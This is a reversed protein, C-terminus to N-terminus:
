GETTRLQIIRLLILFYICYALVSVWALMALTPLLAMNVYHGGWLACVTLVLSFIDYFFKFRLGNLVWVVRSVPSVVVQALGWPAIIAAFHGAESWQHGFIWTFLQPGALMLLACPVSGIAFLGLATKLFLAKPNGSQHNVCNALRAHFVDAVSAGVLGLPMALVTQVLAYEGASKSGFYQAIFPLPVSLALIDVVSSPLGYLPFDKHRILVEYGRRLNFRGAQSRLKVQMRKALMGVAMARGLVDGLLLGPWGIGMFGLGVQAGARGMNQYLPVRGILGFAQERIYRCRLVMLTGNMWIGLGVIWAAWLPFSGYGLVGRHVMWLFVLTSLLSMLAVLVLAAMTMVDAEEDEKVGPLAVDYRLATGTLALSLFTTFLGLRAMEGPQYIRTLIPTATVMLVQGLATGGALLVVGKAFPNM